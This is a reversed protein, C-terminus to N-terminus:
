LLSCTNALVVLKNNIQKPKTLFHMASNNTSATEYMCRYVSFLLDHWLPQPKARVITYAPM